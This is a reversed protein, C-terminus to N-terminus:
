KYPESQHTLSIKRLFSCDSKGQRTPDMNNPMLPQGPPGSFDNGIGQPMRVGPRPGTPYRPGGFLPQNPMMQGHSPAPQSHPSQQSSPHSPPSPRM